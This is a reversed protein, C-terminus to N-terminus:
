VAGRWHESDRRGSIRKVPARGESCFVLCIIQSFIESESTSEYIFVGTLHIGIGGAIGPPDQVKCGSSLGKGLSRSESPIGVIPFDGTISLIPEFERGRRKQNSLNEQSPILRTLNYKKRKGKRKLSCEEKSSQFYSPCAEEEQSGLLKSSKM